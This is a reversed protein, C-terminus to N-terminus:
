GALRSRILDILRTMMEILQRQYFILNSRIEVETRPQSYPPRLVDEQNPEDEVPEEPEVPELDVVEIPEVVKLELTQVPEIDNLWNIARM